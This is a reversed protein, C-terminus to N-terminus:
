YRVGQTVVDSQRVWSNFHTPYGLWKVLYWMEGQRRQRRVIREVLHVNDDRTIQQIEHSYFSGEIVDGNYDRLKFMVPRTKTNIRHIFFEEETWNPLYGKEFVSKVKSIRVRDGVKFGKPQRAPKRQANLRRWVQMANTVNVDAPKCKITRHYAHNYSDVMDQLVDVWKSTNNATFYRWLKNKLTRNWREVIAAKFASKVSFLEIKHRGFLSRVQANEFEKGQDTQVRKPIRKDKQFIDRFAAAVENGQKSKLPRAWAYRSLIDIVTLIYKYGRNQRSLQQMDALDAQWQDNIKHVIYSRTPYRKRAQRHLTYTPQKKLWTKVAQKSVGGAAAALRNVSGLSAPHKPNYYIRKLQNSLNEETPSM